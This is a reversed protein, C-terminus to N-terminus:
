ESDTPNEDPTAPAPADRSILPKPTPKAARMRDRTWYEEIRAKSDPVQVDIANEPSSPSETAGAALGICLTSAAAAVTTLPRRMDDTEKGM